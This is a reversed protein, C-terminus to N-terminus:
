VMLTNAIKSYITIVLVKATRIPNHPKSMGHFKLVAGGVKM